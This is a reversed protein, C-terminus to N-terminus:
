PAGPMVVLLYDRLVRLRRISLTTAVRLGYFLSEYETASNSAPFHMQLVYKFNKVKLSTVLVGV